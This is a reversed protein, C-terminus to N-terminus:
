RKKKGKPKGNTGPHERDPRGTDKENRIEDNIVVFRKEKGRLAIIEEPSMAYHESMFRLNVLDVVEHDSLVIKKWDKSPAYKRYYGYANGYPPGIRETRVPVFFIDPTLRYHFSIDLDSSCV